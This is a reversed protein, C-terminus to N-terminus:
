ELPQRVQKRMNDCFVRKRVILPNVEGARVKGLALSTQAELGAVPFLYEESPSYRFILEDNM